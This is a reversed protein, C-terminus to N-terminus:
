RMEFLEQHFRDAPLGSAGFDERLAQGFGAPGCFWVSASHWQPVAERIRQGNLRGDQGDVLLHLRVGAAAADVTLRDIAAQDFDATPHFLDITRHDPNATRHKLRAVFPTIGIGAGIWIQHPQADEFDFCGYPGEVTVPMGIKLRERLRSTHDGLAKTIFTLRGDAPRWASAITYPHAGESRDSTVFAFQGAAHGPWGSQLRVTTELVRLAPYETLSEITGQVKRGAGIRGLLALVAAISGALMLAALVWGVPQTWYDFKTLVTSHYVLALFAAALWKHTKVFLHYPFRKILALVILVAAVYFVWEGISEALGRQSRLWGEVAGLTEEPRPQRVPRELWGWGVMWKTGKAVWWHLVAAVLASVGLWKHLRYMKDLGDLPRELWTPRLALLMAMAMLGISLVGSFQVFVGRFSFYTFPEPFLTDAALWLATLLVLMAMLSVRIRKM